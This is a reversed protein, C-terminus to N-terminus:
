RITRCLVYDREACRVAFRPKLAASLSREVTLRLAWNQNSDSAGLVLVMALPLDFLPFSATPDSLSATSFRVMSELVGSSGRSTAGAPGANSVGQVSVPTM